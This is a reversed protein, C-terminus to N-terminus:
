NERVRGRNRVTADLQNKAIVKCAGILKNLDFSKIFIGPTSLNVIM